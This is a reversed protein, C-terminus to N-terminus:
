AVLAANGGSAKASYMAADAANMIEDVTPIGGGGFPAVGISTGVGPVEEALVGALRTGIEEVLGGAVLNAEEASVRRLLVGFEDGGLRGIADGSRLRGMLAAGVEAIVRDGAAHGLKDNIGKFNDLDIVLVAGRSDRHVSRGLEEALELEFRRRNFLGSLADHDALYQLRDQAQKPETVDDLAMVAGLRTGDASLIPQGNARRLAARSRRTVM